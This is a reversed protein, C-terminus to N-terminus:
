EHKYAGSEPYFPVIEEELNLGLKVLMSELVHDPSFRLYNQNIELRVHRNGLHYAAKLLNLIHSSKVTIVPEPKARIEVFFDEKDNTLIDGEELISGRLLNLNIYKEDDDNVTNVQIKQKAKLREESTLYLQCDVERNTNLRCKKTLTIMKERNLLSKAPM